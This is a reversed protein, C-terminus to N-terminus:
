ALTPLIVYVSVHVLIGRTSEFTSPICIPWGGVAVVTENAHKSNPDEDFFVRDCDIM